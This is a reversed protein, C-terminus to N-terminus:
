EHAHGGSFILEPSIAQGCAHCRPNAEVWRAIQEQLDAIRERGIEVAGRNVSEQREAAEMRQIMEMLEATKQPAPMPQLKQSIDQRAEFFSVIVQSDAIDKITKVLRTPDALLPPRVLPKLTEFRDQQWTLHCAVVQLDNCLRSLGSVDDLSPVESLERLAVSQADWQRLQSQTKAIEGILAHLALVNRPTPPAQLVSLAQTRREEIEHRRTADTLQRCLFSLGGTEALLPPPALNVLVTGRSQNLEARAGAEAMLWVREALPGLDHIDPPGQLATLAKIRSRGLSEQEAAANSAVILQVFSRIQNDLALLAAYRSELLTLSPAIESLPALSHLQSELSEIETDLKEKERKATTVKRAHRRQMEILKDADSSSAFFHAARSAPDDLLFIPSKQLGFHLLFPSGGASPEIKPM